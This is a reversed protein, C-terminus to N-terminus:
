RYAERRHLIQGVTVIKLEDNVEFLMRYDGVRVRFASRAVLKRAGRGPDDAMRLIVADVRRRMAPSLDFLQRKAKRTLDVRYTV